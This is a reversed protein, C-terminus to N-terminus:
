SNSPTDTDNVKEEIGITELLSSFASTIAPTGYKWRLELDSLCMSVTALNSDLVRKLKMVKKTISDADFDDKIQWWLSSSPTNLAGDGGREDLQVFYIKADLSSINPINGQIDDQYYLFWFISFLFRAEVIDTSGGLHKKADYKTVSRCAAYKVRDSQFNSKAAEVQQADSAGILRGHLDLLMRVYDYHIFRISEMMQNYIRFKKRKKYLILSGADDIFRIVLDYWDSVEKAASM